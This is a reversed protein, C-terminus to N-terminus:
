RAQELLLAPLGEIHRGEIHPMIGGRCAKVIHTFPQERHGIPRGHLGSNRPPTPVTKAAITGPGNSAGVRQKRVSNFDLPAVHKLHIAPLGGRGRMIRPIGARAPEARSHACPTIADNVRRSDGARDCWWHPQHVHFGRRTKAVPAFPFQASAYRRSAARRRGERKRSPLLLCM